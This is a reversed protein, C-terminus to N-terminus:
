TGTKDYECLERHYKVIAARVSNKGPLDVGIGKAVEALRERGMAERVGSDFLLRAWQEPTRESAPIASGDLEVLVLSTVLDGDEDTEDNLPMVYPALVGGLRGTPGDKQKTITLTLSREPSDHDGTTKVLLVSDMAAHVASAGRARDKEILGTHHVLLICAQSEQALRTLRRIARMMETNSNEELGVTCQSQTDIIILDPRLQAIVFRLAEFEDTHLQVAGPVFVVGTM